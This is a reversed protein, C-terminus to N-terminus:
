GLARQYMDVMIQWVKEAAEEEYQPRLPFCFGHETGPHIELVHTLASNEALLPTIDPIVNDEVFPDHESFGLYAEGQMQPILKHPSDEKETVIRTGYLSATAKIREPYTGAASIVFQGSMCYGVTGVLDKANEQQDLYDLIGQTDRMIMENSLAGGVAFMKKFESEGKSLDFRVKGERYYLDPLIGMFGDDALRRTMDRLEERIGPVDMYLIIPTFPGSGEPHAVFCDMQGDPTKVDVNFSQM